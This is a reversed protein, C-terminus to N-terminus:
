PMSCLLRPLDLKGLQQHLQDITTAYNKLEDSVDKHKKLLSQVNAEDRGVDESSVLKRTDLMWVDIDEADAFLQHYDVAEELRKRRFAALDLLHSWMTLIEELREQIRDSGFHQQRM